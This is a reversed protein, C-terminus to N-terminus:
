YYFYPDQNNKAAKNCEKCKISEISYLGRTQKGEAAAILYFHQTDNFSYDDWAGCVSCKIIKRDCYIHPQEM